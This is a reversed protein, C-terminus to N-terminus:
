ARLWLTLGEIREVRCRQGRALTSTGETRATWTTGRLEAKGTGGPVVEEVVTAEAGAIADVPKTAQDLKMAKMIPKRFLAVGVVSLVTFLLWQMADNPVLGLAVLVGVLLGAIGFFIAFFGGPTVLEAALLGIGVLVWIWWAM